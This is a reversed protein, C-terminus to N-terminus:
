WYLENTLQANTKYIMKGNVCVNVSSGSDLCIGKDCGLNTGTKIARQANSLPRVAIITKNTTKNYYLALRNTTRTMGSAETSTFGESLIDYPFLNFGQCCFWIENIIPAIESDYKWSVDVTGNKYVIFTGKKNGKWKGYDRYEHRDNLVKGESILWGITKTGSFFNCNVFNLLKIAEWTGLIKVAKLQMPDLEIIDTLGEKRYVAKKLGFIGSYCEVIANLKKETDVAMEWHSGHEVIFVHEIGANIPNRIMGYYDQTPYTTSPRTKAERFVIGTAKSLEKGIYEAMAKDDPRKMSYFIIIGKAAEPANTHLSILTNCGATDAKASRVPFSLDKGDTRTIFFSKQQLMLGLKLMVDGERYTGPGSNIGAYHGPDFGVKGFNMM